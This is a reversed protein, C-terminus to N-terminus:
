IQSASATQRAALNAANLVPPNLESAWSRRLAQLVFANIPFDRRRAAERIREAELISCRVLIATRPGEGIMSKRSIVQNITSHSNIRTLLREEIEIARETVQLVYGSITRRQKDAEIRVREAEEKSCRILLATRDM